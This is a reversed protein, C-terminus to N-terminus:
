IIVAIVFFSSFKSLSEIYKVQFATKQEQFFVSKGNRSKHSNPFNFLNLLFFTIAKQTFKRFYYIIRHPLPIPIIIITHTDKLKTATQKLTWLSCKCKWLCYDYCTYGCRKKVRRRCVIIIFYVFRM